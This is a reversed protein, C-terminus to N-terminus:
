DNKIMEGMLTEYDNAMREWSFKESQSRAKDKWDMDLARAICDAYADPQAVSVLLGGDGIIEKRSKDDPAVVGLGSALAELYVLGFAERDWSPLIFLDCSRYVKPMDENKFQLIQFRGKLMADGKKKLAERLPGEGIILLSGKNLKAVAEITRDHYKYWVLAGVSLIIPHPLDIKIKEGVPSFRDLDIGNSIKVVKIGLAFNRAWGAMDNTLAVFVDPRVILINWIDDRGKGSHGTILLKYGALFRGISMKLSQFRGNVPIVVDFKGKLVEKLSDAKQGSFVEVINKKSLRKVLEKVFVEVGRETSNQYRSM